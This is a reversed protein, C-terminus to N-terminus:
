RFIVQERCVTEKSRVELIYHTEKSFSAPVQFSLTTAPSFRNYDIKAGGLDYITIDINETPREFIQVNIRFNEIPNPYVRMLQKRKSSELLLINSYDVKGHHDTAAIRYFMKSTVIEHTFSYSEQLNLSSNNIRKIKSFSNGSTSFELSYFHYRTNEDARCTIKSQGDFYQGTITIQELPPLTNNNFIPLKNFDTGLVKTSESPSLCLWDQM